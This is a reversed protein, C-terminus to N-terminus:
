QDVARMAEAIQRSAENWEIRDPQQRLLETMTQRAAELLKRVSLADLQGHLWPLLDRYFFRCLAAAQDPKLTPELLLSALWSIAPNPSEEAKALVYQELPLLSALNDPAPPLASLHAAARARDDAAMIHYILEYRRLPDEEPLTQLHYSLFLHLRQRLQVDRCFRNLVAQRLLKHAFDWTQWGRRFVFWGPLLQRFTDWSDPEWTRRAATPELLRSSKPVLAALDRERLGRRSIAVLGLCAQTWGRGLVAECGELIHNCLPEVGPPLIKAEEQLLETPVPQAVEGAFTKPQAHYRLRVLPSTLYQGAIELWLPLRWAPEFISDGKQWLVEEVVTLEPYGRLHWVWRLHERAGDLEHPPVELLRARPLNAITDALPGPTSTLILFTECERLDNLWALNRVTATGEFEELGDIAVVAPKVQPSARIKGVMGAWLTDMSGLPEAFDTPSSLASDCLCQDLLRSTFDRLFGSPPPPETGYAVIPGTMGSLWMLCHRLLETKGVGPPGVFCVTTPSEEAGGRIWKELEELFAQRRSSLPRDQFPAAMQATEGGQDCWLRTEGFVAPVWGPILSGGAPTGALNEGRMQCGM